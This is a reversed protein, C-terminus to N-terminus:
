KLNDIAQNSLKHMGKSLKDIEEQQSSLGKVKVSLKDTNLELTAKSADDSVFYSEDSIMASKVASSDVNGWVTGDPSTLLDTTCDETSTSDYCYEYFGNSIVGDNLDFLFYEKTGFTIDLIVCMHSRFAPAESCAIARHSHGVILSVVSSEDSNLDESSFYATDTFITSSISFKYHLSLLGYFESLPSGTVTVTLTAAASNEIGDNVILSIIYSGAIDPTFTPQVANASSLTTTSGAPKTTFAWNYTLSDGDADSSSSGNLTVVNGVESNQALGANAVPSTNVVVSESSSGGGGGGGSCNILFASFLLLLFVGTILKIIKMCVGKM